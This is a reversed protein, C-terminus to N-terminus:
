STELVCCKNLYSYKWLRHVASSSVNNSLFLCLTGLFVTTLDRQQESALLPTFSLQLMSPPSATSSQSSWQMKNVTTVLPSVCYSTILLAIAQLTLHSLSFLVVLSVASLQLQLLFYSWWFGSLLFLFSSCGCRAMNNAKGARIVPLILLFTHILHNNTIEASAIHYRWIWYNIRMHFFSIPNSCTLECTVKEHPDTYFTMGISALERQFM